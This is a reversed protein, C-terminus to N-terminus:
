ALACSPDREAQRVIKLCRSRSTCYDSADHVLMTRKKQGTVIQVGTVSKGALWDAM